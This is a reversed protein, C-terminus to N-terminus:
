NLWVSTLFLGKLTIHLKIGLWRVFVLSLNDVFKLKRIKGEMKKSVLCGGFCGFRFSFKCLCIM